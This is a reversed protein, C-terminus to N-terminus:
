QHDGAHVEVTFIGSARHLTIRSVYHVAVATTSRGDATPGVTYGDWFPSQHPASKPERTFSHGDAAVSTLWAGSNDNWILSVKGHADATSTHESSVPDSHFPVVSISNVLTFTASASKPISGDDFVLQCSLTNPGGQIGQRSRGLFHYCARPAVLAASIFCLAILLWVKTRPKV